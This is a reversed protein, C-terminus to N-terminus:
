RASEGPTFVAVYDSFLTAYRWLVIDVVQVPEGVCESILECLERPSGFGAAKAIRQLHRDPKVVPLGLNKALHFATISGIYPLTQLFRVDEEQIRRRIVEFGSDAVVCAIDVIADIKRHNNFVRLAARRCGVRNAQIVAASKLGLFADCIPPFLRRVVTERFGASLVTWASERLFESEDIRDLRREAQWDIEWAFGRAVVAEKATLYVDLLAAPAGNSAANATM